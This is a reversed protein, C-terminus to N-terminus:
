KFLYLYIIYAYEATEQDINVITDSRYEYEGAEEASIEDSRAMVIDCSETTQNNFEQIYDEYTSAVFNLQEM